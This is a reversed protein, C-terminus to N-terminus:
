FPTDYGGVLAPAVDFPNAQFLKGTEHNYNLPITM